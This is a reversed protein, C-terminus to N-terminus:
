FDILLAEKKEKEEGKEKEEEKAENKYGNGTPVTDSVGPVGSLLCLEELHSHAPRTAFVDVLDAYLDEDKTTNAECAILRDPAPTEELIDL